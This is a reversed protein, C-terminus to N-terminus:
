ICTMFCCNSGHFLPSTWFQSLLIVLSYLMMRTLYSFSVPDTIHLLDTLSTLLTSITFFNQLPSVPVPLNTHMLRNLNGYGFVLSPHSWCFFNIEWLAWILESWDSLRTQSQSGMFWLVGPRGTWWWSGSNVSVWTWRTLSAVWGDWGRDDGEGGAGM